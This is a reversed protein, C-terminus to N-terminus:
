RNLAAAISRVREFGEEGATSVKHQFGGPVLLQPPPKLTLVQQSSVMFNKVCKIVCGVIYIFQSRWECVLDSEDIYYFIM